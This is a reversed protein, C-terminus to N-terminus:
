LIEISFCLEKNTNSQLLQIGEKELINGNANVTDAYGLWPELCVFPAGVKTWIGFNLFDNFKFNLIPKHNELLQIQKSVMKKFVLADKEFLSYTLPLVKNQLSLINTNNTLLDSQLSYCLLSEDSEFHLSYQSFPNKLAFAPHGGICYPMTTNNNNKVIYTVVLENENLSYILQLEFKFPFLKLTEQSEQLSFIVKDSQLEIIKFEFDRAFGHRPLYYNQNNYHYSNNKLTGVIPFLIPSHKGWFEPNGEWIYERETHKHQLSILEAGTSNITASINSNSITTTLKLITKKASKKDPL